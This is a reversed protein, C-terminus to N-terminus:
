RFGSERVPVAVLPANLPRLDAAVGGTVFASLLSLPFIFFGGRPAALDIRRNPAAKWNSNTADRVADRADCLGLQPNGAAGIRPNACRTANGAVPKRRLEFEAVLEPDGDEHQAVPFPWRAPV